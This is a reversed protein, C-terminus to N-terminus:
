VRQANVYLRWIWPFGSCFSMSPPEPGSDQAQLTICCQWAAQIPDSEPVLHWVATSKAGCHDITKLVTPLVTWIVPNSSALGTCTCICLNSTAKFYGRFCILSLEDMIVHIQQMQQHWINEGHLSCTQQRSVRNCRGLLLAGQLAEQSVM